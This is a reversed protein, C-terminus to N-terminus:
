SIIHDDQIGMNDLEKLSKLARELSDKTRAQLRTFAKYRIEEAMLKEMEAMYLRHSADKYSIGLREQLSLVEAHALLRERDSSGQIIYIFKRM